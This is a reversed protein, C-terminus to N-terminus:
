IFEGRNERLINIYHMKQNKRDNLHSQKDDSMDPVNANIMSEIIGRTGINMVQYERLNNINIWRDNLMDFRERTLSGKNSNGNPLNNKNVIQHISYVTSM